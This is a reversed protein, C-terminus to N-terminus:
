HPRGAQHRIVGVTMVLISLIVTLMLLGVPFNPLRLEQPISLFLLVTILGRPAIPIVAFLRRDSLLRFLIFRIGIILAIITVSGLLTIPDVLTSLDASYGFLLFFFTRILFASEGTLHKIQTLERDFLENHLLRRLRGRVFLETNNLFLGFVLILLLSSLHFLKGIAYFLILCAIIPLYKVSHNIFSILYLLLFCCVVSLGCMLATDQFFAPVSWWGSPVNYLLFNFLMVGIIDSLSSEYIVFERSVASFNRVSPIAVASSIVSFPVAALLSNQFPQHLWSSLLVGVSLSLFLISLLSVRFARRILPLRDTTLELELAGELVILILGVTGLVSLLRNQFPIQLGMYDTLQRLVVGSVLLLIVSPVRYRRSVLDFVYSLLVVLCLLIILYTNRM